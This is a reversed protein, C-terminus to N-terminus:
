SGATNNSLALFLPSMKSMLKGIARKKNKDEYGEEKTDNSRILMTGHLNHESLSVSRLNALNFVDHHSIVNECLSSM